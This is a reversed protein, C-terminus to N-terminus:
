KMSCVLRRSLGRQLFVHSDGGLAVGLNALQKSRSQIARGAANVAHNSKGGLGALLSPAGHESAESELSSTDADIGLSSIHRRVRRIYIGMSLQRENKM